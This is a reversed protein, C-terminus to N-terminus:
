VNKEDYLAFHVYKKLKATKKREFVTKLQVKAPL